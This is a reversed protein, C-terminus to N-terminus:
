LRDDEGLRRKRAQERLEAAYRRRQRWRWAGAVLAAVPVSALYIELGLIWRDVIRELEDMTVPGHSEYWWDLGRPIYSSLWVGLGWGILLVAAGVAWPAFFYKPPPTGLQRAAKRAELHERTRVWGWITWLVVASGCAVVMIVVYGTAYRPDPGTISGAVIIAVVGVMMALLPVGAGLAAYVAAPNGDKRRRWHKLLAAGLVAVVVAYVGVALVMM